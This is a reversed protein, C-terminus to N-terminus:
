GDFSIPITITSRVKGPFFKWRKFTAVAERDLLPSGTSKQISVTRVLGTKQDMHLVFVGKGKPRRGDPLTPYGPPPAYIARGSEDRKRDSAAVSSSIIVCVTIAVINTVFRRMM